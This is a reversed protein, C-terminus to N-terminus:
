EEIILTNIDLIIVQKIVSAYQEQLDNDSKTWGTKRGVKGGKSIYKEKSSQM